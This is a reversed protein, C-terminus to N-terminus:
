GTQTPQLVKYMSVIAQFKPVLICSHIAHKVKGQEDTNNHRCFPYKSKSKYDQLLM